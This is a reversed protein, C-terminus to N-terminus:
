TNLAFSDTAQILEHAIAEEFASHGADPVLRFDAEPWIRHLEWATRVPCVVDYRGQIIIAPIERIKYIDNFLQDPTELFGGNVFYHTEIRALSFAFDDAAFKGASVESVLLNSTVGEWVAWAKACRLQEEKEGITLRQYYASILNEREDIPIPAIFNEWHDPFIESAGYQYFWQLESSRLMFIGRLIIETVCAPYKQAYCLALTSGWSGGFVQWREIDLEKRLREIDDVLDWTTNEELCAHPRSRGSGRQDFVVIRYNKPNFFRRVASNSGAGPGGHLFVVPKGTPNGSEEYYLEHIGPVKLYGSNYPAFPPYLNRRRVKTM